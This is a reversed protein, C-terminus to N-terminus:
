WEYIGIPVSTVVKNVRSSYGWVEFCRKYYDEARLINITIKDGTQKIIYYFHFIKNEIVGNPVIKSEVDERCVDNRIEVRTGSTPVEIGIKELVRSLLTPEYTKIVKYVKTFSLIIDGKKFPNINDPFQILYQKNKM